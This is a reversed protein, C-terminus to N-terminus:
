TSVGSSAVCVCSEALAARAGQVDFSDRAGLEQQLSEPLCPAFKSLRAAPGPRFLRSAEDITPRGTERLERLLDRVRPESTGAGDRFTISLNNCSVRAGLNQELVLALVANAAGGAFTWWEVLDRHALTVTEEPLLFGHSSRATQLVQRARKSWAPDEDQRTYVRRMAQCLERSLWRGGGMWRAARGDASPRVLCIGREWEIHVIQWAKGALTFSPLGQEADATIATLFRAEVAGVEQNHARVSIMRPSEFVAYLARFNARGYRKEGEPGLWMRGDQDSLIGGALMHNVIANRKSDGLERFASAQSVPPWIDGRALGGAAVVGAMVQHAFIHSAAYDPAVSEVFGSRYLELLAATQVLRDERTALFTCNPLTHERRGTRGMRQLFSAVSNPSDIQLVHDLDGVDIGLELASTAVIVCNSGEHFAKEADRRETASLSGHAVFSLVGADAVLKGIQEALRRSEVFVLRKKGPHLAAIVKAANEPSGVYDLHLEPVKRTGGPDVVAAARQSGGGLWRLIEEPNGVTASLGIRQVDRRTFYALRELLASLHAGRDDDAFAHVEDIIVAALNRFLQAAPFRTSMLMAELSEPTTLVIDTPDRLFRKRDSDSIDGHWKFARRSILGAYRQVRHEQNNLLARIPSLYLVSVPRLDESEIRSLLPFFAAETKGGATPALVVANKGDLIADIAQLQVPRLDRFGLQNVIQYALGSALRDFATM